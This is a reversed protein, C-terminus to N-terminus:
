AEKIARVLKEVVPRLAVPIMQDWIELIYVHNFVANFEEETLDLSLHKMM